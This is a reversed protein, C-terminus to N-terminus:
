RLVNVFYQYNLGEVGHQATYINTFVPRYPVRVVVDCTTIQDAHKCQNRLIRSAKM